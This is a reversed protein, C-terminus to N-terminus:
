IGGVDYPLLLCSHCTPRAAHVHGQVNFQIFETVNSHFCRKGYNVGLRCLIKSVFSMAEYPMPHCTM